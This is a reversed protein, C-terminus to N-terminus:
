LYLEKFKKKRVTDHDVIVLKEIGELTSLADVVFGGLTGLGIVVISKYIV